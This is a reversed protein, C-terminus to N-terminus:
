KGICFKNFINNLIDDTTIVGIIESLKDIACRVDVSIMESTLGSQITVISNNIFKVAEELLLKHRLNTVVLDNEHYINIQNIRDYVIDILKDVNYDNKASILVDYKNEFDQNKDLIDVKNGVRIVNNHYNNIDYILKESEPRTVDIIHLVLDSNKLTEITKEVGINEIIDSTNRIGATDIINVLYGKIYIQEKIIDRTTGPINTVIAREEKLIANLLSSKGVNPEGVISINYGNKVIKGYEYSKIYSNLKDNVYILQKLLEDRSMFEVDEESFDLELEIMSISKLIAEKLEEIKKTYSESKQVRAWKLSIESGASIIDAVAEAEILNMKGNLFARQTFEGNNAVRAGQKICLEIIKNVILPNGHCSIEITDEGTYSKPGKYYVIIVDDVIHGHEDIIDTYLISKEKIKNKHERKIISTVINYSLEGSLRIVSVAAIGPPTIQAVITSKDINM